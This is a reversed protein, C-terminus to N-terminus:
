GDDEKNWDRRSRVAILLEDVIVTNSNSMLWNFIQEAQYKWITRAIWHRLFFPM